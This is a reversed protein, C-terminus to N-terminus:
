REKKIRRRESAIQKWKKREEAQARQDVRRELYALERQYELYREYRQGPLEGSALAEQIRCGPEGNHACDTFRCAAALEEVDPFAAALEGSNGWLALERLGPVDAMIVGPALLYLEKHTTTHRGQLDGRRQTGERAPSAALSAAPAPAPGAPGTTEAGPAEPRGGDVAHDGPAALRTFANVLASKGVGSKGLMGITVGPRTDRGPQSGSGGAGPMDAPGAGTGAATSEATSAQTARQAEELLERLGDGTLASVVYVPVGPANAQAELRVAEMHCATACDAKNLVVVPRAGSNWAVVLSRELMGATFNRGGDLGFVLFILDINATIVQETSEEGASARSVASRRPLVRQIRGSEPEYLVWDGATPFDAATAARYSFAGSVEAERRSADPACVLHYTHRVHRIVRAPLLAPDAAPDVGAERAKAEWQADWGWAALDPFSLQSAHSAPTNGSHSYRIKKM